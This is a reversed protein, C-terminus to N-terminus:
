SHMNSSEGFYVVAYPKPQIFQDPVLIAYLGAHFPPEWTNLKVPDTFQIGDYNISM